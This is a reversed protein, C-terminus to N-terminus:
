RLGTNQRAAWTTSARWDAGNARQDPKRIPIASVTYQEFRQRALEAHIKVGTLVKSVAQLPQLEGLNVVIGASSKACPHQTLMLFISQTREAAARYRFWTALPIRSAFEAPVSGMDLVIASFGGAQLLLDTVRLAQDLLSWNSDAKYTPVEKSKIHKASPEHLKVQPRPKRIPHYCRPDHAERQELVYTGRRAPMRDSAIQEEHLNLHKNGLTSTSIPRNLAGPTGIIRDRKFNARVGLLDSIAYPLGQIESRPHPSNGGLLISTIHPPKVEVPSNQHRHCFHVTDSGCRIWLLRDLVIGTAAASMPDLTDSVDVWACVKGQCTIQALFTLAMSTRGSCEAGVLESIAGVPLGGGLLEDLSAIGIATTPRIAKPAPTLASPIRRALVAEIEARIQATAPM